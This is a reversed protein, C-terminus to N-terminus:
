ADPQPRLLERVMPRLAWWAVLTAAVAFLALLGLQARAQGVVGSYTLVFMVSALVANAIFLITNMVAMANARADAPVSALYFSRLPVNALGAMLGLVLCPWRPDRAAAAWALAGLLGTAAFPVLGLCRRLNGHAGALWSGAAGGVAILAMLRLLAWKGEGFTPDLTRNFLGGSGATVLAMFAALGLVSWRSAPRALVRRADRFFGAIAASPSERRRVDAAFRVPLAAGLGIASAALTATVAAPFPLLVPPVDHLSMGLGAGAIIAVAGGMEIWGTVRTLPLSTDAAAASLLAYRTPSYVAMGVAVLGLCSLWAGGWLGFFLVAALCFAAAGALVRAKSLANGLAGNIPALLIFPATYVATALYWASNLEREGRRALELVVFVRLCWDALVRVSQSV